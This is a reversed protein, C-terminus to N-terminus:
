QLEFEIVRTHNHAILLELECQKCLKYLQKNFLM